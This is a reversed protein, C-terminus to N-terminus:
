IPVYPSSIPARNWNYLNIVLDGKTLAMDTVESISLVYDYCLKLRHIGNLTLETLRAGNPFEYRIDNKCLWKIFFVLSEIRVDTTHPKFFRGNWFVQQIRPRNNLALNVIEGKHYYILCPDEELELSVFLGRRQLYKIFNQLASLNPPLGTLAEAIGFVSLINEPFLCQRWTPSKERTAEFERM